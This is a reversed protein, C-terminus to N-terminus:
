FPAEGAPAAWPDAEAAPAGGGGAREARNVKATDYDLAVAISDAVVSPASRKEKTEKDEWEDTKLKGVVTLLHGKEVSEAVNEALRKFATVWVWFKDGDEWENTDKNFKRGSAVCRIKAVAVGSPAFRLEPDDVARCQLTIQPLPM